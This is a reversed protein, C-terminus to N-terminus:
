SAQQLKQADRKSEFEVMKRYAACDTCTISLTAMNGHHDTRGITAVIGAEGLDKISAKFQPQYVAGFMAPTLTLDDRRMGGAALMTFLKWDIRGVGDQVPGSVYPTVDGASDIEMIPLRLAGINVVQAIAEGADSMIHAAIIGNSYGDAGISYEVDLHIDEIQDHFFTAETDNGELFSWGLEPLAIQPTTQTFDM